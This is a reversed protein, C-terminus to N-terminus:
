PIDLGNTAVIDKFFGVFHSKYDNAGYVLACIDKQQIFVQSRKMGEQWCELVKKMPIHHCIGETRNLAQIVELIDLKANIPFMPDWFQLESERDHAYYSIEIRTWGLM